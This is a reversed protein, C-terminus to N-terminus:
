PYLRVVAKFSLMLLLSLLPIATAILTLVKKFSGTGTIFM